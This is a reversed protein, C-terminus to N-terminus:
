RAADDRALAAPARLAVPHEAPRREFDPFSGKRINFFALEPLSFFAGKLGSTLLEGRDLPLMALGAAAVGLGTIVNLTGFVPRAAPANDTFFLFASDDPAKRYLTSTLTNSERLFVWFPNEREYMRGLQAKRYSPLEVVDSVAYGAQVIAASVAPIFSMAGAPEVYGGLREVSARRVRAALAAGALAPERTLLDRRLAAEITRFIETVCNRTFLNYGYLHKLGALLAAEREAAAALARHLDDSGLAPLPLAPLRVSRGPLPAGWALRADRRDALAGEVQALRNGTAELEALEAEPFAEATAGRRLLTARASVFDAEVRERLERAFAPKSVLRERRIVMADAPTADLVVWRASRRTEDLAILRAMGLLLPFGWDPRRSHVLRVLSAELMQGLREVVAVEDPTLEPLRADAVSGQRLPRASDLAELALLALVTDRYREAFGYRVPALRDPALPRAADADADPRLESLEAQARRIARELADDGHAAKVRERLRVLAPAPGGAGEGAHEASPSALDDFFFGAGDLVMAAAASSGLRQDRSAELLRRDDVAAEYDALHQRQVFYRRTLEELVLAYTDRSVPIHSVLITRNYLVGYRHRIVEVPERALSLIGPARHEFHFVRDGLALAAHGGSGGGESGDMYLYEIERGAGAPAARLLLVLPAFLLVLAAARRRM